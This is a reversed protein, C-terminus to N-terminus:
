ARAPMRIGALVVESERVDTVDAGAKASGAQRLSEAHVRSAELAQRSDFTVSVAAHGSARDVLLVASCYGELLQVDHLTSSSYADIASDVRHPDIRVRTTRGWFGPEASRRRDLVALELLETAAVGGGLREAIQVRLPALAADSATRAQMSAWATTVTTAGTDRDVLMSLGLGGPLGEVVPVVNDRVFAVGEDIRHADAHITTARVLM